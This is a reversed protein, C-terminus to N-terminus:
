DTPTMQQTHMEHKLQKLQAVELFYRRHEPVGENVCVRFMHENHKVLRLCGWELAM